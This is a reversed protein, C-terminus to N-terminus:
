SIINDDTSSGLLADRALNNNEFSVHRIERPSNVDIGFINQLVFNRRQEFLSQYDFWMKNDYPVKKSINDDMNNTNDKNSIGERISSSEKICNDNLTESDTNIIYGIVTQCENDKVTKSSNSSAFVNSCNSSMMIVAVVGKVFMMNTNM